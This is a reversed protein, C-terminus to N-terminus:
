KVSLVSIFAGLCLLEVLGISFIWVKKMRLLQLIAQHIEQYDMIYMFIIGIFLGKTLARGLSMIFLEKREEPSLDNGQKKLLGASKIGMLIAVVHWYSPDAWYDTHTGDGLSMEFFKNSNQLKLDRGILDADRWLNTWYFSSKDYEEQLK